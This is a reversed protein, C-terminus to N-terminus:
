QVDVNISKWSSWLGLSDKARVYIIHTGISQFAHKVSSLQTSIIYTGAMGAMGPNLLDNKVSQNEYGMKMITPEGDILYEYAIVEDQEIDSTKSADILYEMGQINSVSIMPSPPENDCDMVNISAEGRDGYYDSVYIKVSFKLVKDNLTNSSLTDSITLKRSEKDLNCIVYDLTTGENFVAFDINIGSEKYDDDFDFFLTSTQGHRLLISIESQKENCLRSQSSVYVKPVSNYQHFIDKRTECSVIFIASIVFLVIKKM